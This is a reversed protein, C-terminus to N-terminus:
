SVRVSHHAQPRSRHRRDETRSAPDRPPKSWCHPRRHPRAPASQLLPLIQCPWGDTTLQARLPEDAGDRWARATTPHAVPRLRFRPSARVPTFALSRMLEAKASFPLAPEAMRKSRNYDVMLKIEPGIIRRAESVIRVDDALTGAGIKIKIARFGSEVSRELLGADKAPDIIGYSDYAPLPRAEGGLLSVVPLDAACGLADWLAMDIAGVAMGILGQWGVLRFRMELQRMREFPSVSKGVLEPELDKLLSVLARLTVPTYAFLYSRGTVGEETAIDLLVLPASPVEGVATRIPNALPADVARAQLGRITLKPHQM